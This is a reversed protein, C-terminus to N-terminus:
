ATWDNVLSCNFWGAEVQYAILGQSSDTISIHVGSIISNLCIKTLKGHSYWPDNLM